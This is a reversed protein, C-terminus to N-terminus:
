TRQDEEQWAKVSALTKRLRDRADRIGVKLSGVTAHEGACLFGGNALQHLIREATAATLILHRLWHCRRCITAFPTPLRVGCDPCVNIEITM